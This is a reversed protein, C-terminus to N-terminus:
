EEIFLAKALEQCIPCIPFKQPDRTPVFFKGCIALVAKGMVYGETVSAANAYHAFRPEGTETEELSIKTEEIVSTM